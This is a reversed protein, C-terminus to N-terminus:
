GAASKEAAGTTKASVPRASSTAPACEAPGIFIQVPQLASRVTQRAAPSQDFVVDAKDTRSPDVILDCVFNRAELRQKAQASPLGILSPVLPGISIGVVVTGDVPATARTEDPWAAVVTGIDATTSTYVEERVATLGVAELAAAAAAFSPLGVLAPVAAVSAPLALSPLTVVASPVAPTAPAPPSSAAVATAAPAPPTPSSSSTQTQKGALSALLVIGVPSRGLLLAALLLAANPDRAPPTV